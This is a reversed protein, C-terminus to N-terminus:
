SEKKNAMREETRKRSAEVIDKTTERRSFRSRSRSAGKERITSYAKLQEATPVYGKGGEDRLFKAPNKEAQKRLTTMEREVSEKSRGRYSEAKNAEVQLRKLLQKAQIVLSQDQGTKQSVSKTKNYEELIDREMAEFGMNKREDATSGITVTPRKKLNKFLEKIGSGNNDLADTAMLELTADDASLGGGYKKEEGVIQGEAGISSDGNEIKSMLKEINISNEGEKAGKLITSVEDTYKDLANMVRTNIAVENNKNGKFDALAKSIILKILDKHIVQLDRPSEISGRRDIETVKMRIPETHREVDKRLASVMDHTNINVKNKNETDTKIIVSLAAANAKEGEILRNIESEISSNPDSETKVENPEGIPDGVADITIPPLTVEREIKYIICSNKSLRALRGTLPNRIETSISQITRDQDILQSYSSGFVYFYQGAGYNKLGYFICEQKQSGSQFQTPCIDSIVLYFPCAFLTPIRNATLVVSKINGLNVPQNNLLGNEYLPTGDNTGPPIPHATFINVYLNEAVDTEGNMMLPKKGENMFEIDERGYTFNSFRNDQDGYHPMLQTYDFGMKDMLNGSWNEPTAKTLDKLLSIRNTTTDNRYVMGGAIDVPPYDINTTKLKGVYPNYINQPNVDRPPSWGKPAFYINNLFVGTVSDQVTQNTKNYNVPLNTPDPQYNVASGQTTNLTAMTQGIQPSDATVTTSLNVASLTTATYLGSLSFRNKENDFAMLADNAGIWSYNQNNWSWKRNPELANVKITNALYDPNMPLVAPNDYGFNPSWGFFDGWYLQSLEWSSTGYPDNLDATDPEYIDTGFKAKYPRSVVFGCLWHTNGDEDNYLYPVVGINRKSSEEIGGPYLWDGNSDKMQCFANASGIAGPPPLSPNIPANAPVNTTGTNGNWGDFWRSYIEVHGSDRAGQINIECGQGMYSQSPTTIGGTAPAASLGTVTAPYETIWNTNIPTILSSGAVTTTALAKMPEAGDSMGVDAEWVWWNQRNQNEFGNVAEPNTVQYSENYRFAEQIKDLNHYEDGVYGPSTNKYEINTFIVEWKLLETTPFYFLSKISPPVPPVNQPAPSDVTLNNFYTNLIVPRPIDRHPHIITNGDWCECRIFRDGAHCKRYNAVGMNGYIFNNWQWDGENGVKLYDTTQQPHYFYPSAIQYKWNPQNIINSPVCKMLNGIWLPSVKNWLSATLGTYNAHGLGEVNSFHGTSTLPYVNNSKNFPFVADNIYDQLKNGQGTLLPNISHFAATFASALNNVDEFSNNARIIVYATMPHLEPSMDRGNPLPQPASYEPSVLIYPQNDKYNRLDFTTIDRSGNVGTTTTTTSCGLEPIQIGTVDAFVRTQEWLFAGGRLRAQTDIMGQQATAQAPATGAVRYPSSHNYLGIGIRGGKRYSTGLGLTQLTTNFPNASYGYRAGPLDDYIALGTTSSGICTGTDLNLTNVATWNELFEIYIRNEVTYGPNFWTTEGWTVFNVIGSPFTVPPPPPLPPPPIVGEIGEIYVMMGPVITINRGNMNAGAGYPVEEPPYEVKVGTGGADNGCSLIIGRYSTGATTTGIELTTAATVFGYIQYGSKLTTPIPVKFNYGAELAPANIGPYQNINTVETPTGAIQGTTWTGSNTKLVTGAANNINNKFKIPLNITRTGNNSVYFGFELIITDDTWAQEIEGIKVNEGSFEITQAQSGAGSSEIMIAEVSVKDGRKFSFNTKCQWAANNSDPATSDIISNGRNCEILYAQTGTIPEGM